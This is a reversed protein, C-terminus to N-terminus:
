YSSQLVFDKNVLVSNSCTDEPSSVTPISESGFRYPLNSNLKVVAGGNSWAPPRFLLGAIRLVSFLLQPMTNIFGFVAEAKSLRVIPFYSITKGGNYCYTSLWQWEM